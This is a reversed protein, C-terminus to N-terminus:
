EHRRLECQSGEGPIPEGFVGPIPPSMASWPQGKECAPIYRKGWSGSYSTHAWPGVNFIHVCTDEAMKKELPLLQPVKWRTRRAALDASHVQLFETASIRLNPASTGM